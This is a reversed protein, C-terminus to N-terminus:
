LRVKEKEDQALHCKKYKKGSGCWCPDNRGIRPSLVIPLSAQAQELAALRTEAHHKQWDERYQELFPKPTLYHRKYEGEYYKAVDELSIIDTDIQDAAFAAEIIPRAEPDALGSLDAALFSITLIEDETLPEARELYGTLIGRLAMAIEARPGADHRALGVAGNVAQARHFYPLSGNAAVSLLSTIAGTGLRLVADQLAEIMDEDVQAFARVFIPIADPTQLAALLELSYYVIGDADEDTHSAALRESTLLADLAPVAQDGLALIDELLAPDPWNWHPVLRQVRVRATETVDAM